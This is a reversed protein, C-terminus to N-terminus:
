SRTTSSQGGLMESTDSFMKRAASASNSGVMGVVRDSRVM